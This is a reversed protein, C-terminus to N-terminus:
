SVKCNLHLWEARWRVTGAAGSHTSRRHVPARHGCVERRGSGEQGTAGGGAGQGSYVPVQLVEAPTHIISCGM